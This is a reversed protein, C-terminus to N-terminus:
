QSSPPPGGHVPPHDMTFQPTRVPPEILVRYVNSVQGGKGNTQQTWEIMQRDRLEALARKVSAPSCSAESAITAHSPNIVPLGLRSNLSLYVLKAHGSLTEDRLIWNPIPTWGQVSM